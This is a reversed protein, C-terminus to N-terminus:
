ASGDAADGELAAVVDARPHGGVAALERVDGPALAAEEDHDLIEGASGLRAQGVTPALLGRAESGVAQPDHVSRARVPPVHEHGRGDITADLLPHAGLGAVDAFRRPAREAGSTRGWSGMRCAVAVPDRNSFGEIFRVRVR